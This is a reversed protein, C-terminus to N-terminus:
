HEVFEGFWDFEFYPVYCAIGVAFQGVAIERYPGLALSAPKFDPWCWVICLYIFVHDLCHLEQVKDGIDVAPWPLSTSPWTRLKYELLHANTPTASGRLGLASTSVQKLIGLVFAEYAGIGDNCCFYELFVM